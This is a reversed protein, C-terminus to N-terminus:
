LEMELAPAMGLVEGTYLEAELTDIVILRTNPDTAM